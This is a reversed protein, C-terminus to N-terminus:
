RMLFFGFLFFQYSNKRGGFEASEINSYYKKRKGEGLLEYLEVNNPEIEMEDRKHTQIM